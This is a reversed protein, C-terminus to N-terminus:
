ALNLGYRRQEIIQSRSRSAVEVTELPEFGLKALVWGSATNDVAHGARLRALGVATSAFRVVAHAAESAYGRGWALREFWYGLDAEGQGLSDLDVVGVMRSGAEVAFRYAEGALWERPHDAFWTELEARDPPFAAMRLIRTVAWDCQIEFARSADAGSTPRLVLRDTAMPTRPILSATMSFRGRGQLCHLLVRRCAQDDPAARPHTGAAIVGIGFGDHSHRPFTHDLLLTMAEVGPLTSRQQAVM